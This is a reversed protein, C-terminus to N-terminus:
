SKLNSLGTFCGARPFAGGGPPMRNLRLAVSFSAYFHNVAALAAENFRRNVRMGAFCAAYYDAIFLKETELTEPPVADWTFAACFDSLLRATDRPESARNM